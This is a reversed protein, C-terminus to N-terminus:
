SASWIQWTSFEFWMALYITRYTSSDSTLRLLRPDHPCTGGLTRSFYKQAIIIYFETMKPCSDHLIRANQQNKPRICIKWPIITHGRFNISSRRRHEYVTSSAVSSCFVSWYKTVTVLSLYPKLELLVACRTPVSASM